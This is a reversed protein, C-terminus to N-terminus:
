GRHYKLYGFTTILEAFEAQCKGLCKINNLEGVFFM